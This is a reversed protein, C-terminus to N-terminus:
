KRELYSDKYGDEPTKGHSELADITEQLLNM